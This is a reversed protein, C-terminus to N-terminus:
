YAQQVHSASHCLRSECTGDASLAYWEGGFVTNMAKVAAMTTAAAEATMPDPDGPRQWAGLNVMVRGGNSLRGKIGQWVEEQVRIFSYM